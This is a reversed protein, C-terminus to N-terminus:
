QPPHQGGALGRGVELHTAVGARGATGTYQRQTGVTM